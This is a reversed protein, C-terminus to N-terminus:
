ISILKAFRFLAYILCVQKRKMDPEHEEIRVRCNEQEAVFGAHAAKINGLLTRLNEVQREAEDM